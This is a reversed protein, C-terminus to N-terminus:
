QALDRYQWCEQWWPAQPPSDSSRIHPVVTLIHGLLLNNRKLQVTMLFYSDLKSIIEFGLGVVKGGDNLSVVFDLM